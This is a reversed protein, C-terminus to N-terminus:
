RSVLTHGHYVLMLPLHLTTTGLQQPSTDGLLNNGFVNCTGNATYYFRVKRDQRANNETEIFLWYDQFTKDEGDDYANLNTSIILRNTSINTTTVVRIFDGISKALRENLALETTTGM